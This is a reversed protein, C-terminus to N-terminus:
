FPKGMNVGTNAVLRIVEAGPSSLIKQQLEAVHYHNSPANLKSFSMLLSSATAADISPLLFHSQLFLPDLITHSTERLVVLSSLLRTLDKPLLSQPSSTIASFLVTQLEMFLTASVAAFAWLFRASSHATLMVDTEVLRVSLEHFFETASTHLVAAASATRDLIEEPIEHIRNSLREVVKSFWEPTAVKLRSFGEMFMCLEDTQFGEWTTKFRDVVASDLVSPAEMVGLATMMGCIFRSGGRPILLLGVSEFKEPIQLNHVGCARIVSVCMEEDHIKPATQNSLSDIILQVMSVDCSPMRNYCWLLSTIGEPTTDRAINLVTLNKEVAHFIEPDVAEQATLSWLVNCVHKARWPVTGVPKMLLRRPLSGPHLFPQLDNQLKSAAWMARAVDSTSRLMPTVHEFAWQCQELPIQMKSCGWLFLLLDETTANRTLAQTYVASTISTVHKMDCEDLINRGLIWYLISIEKPTIVPGKEGFSLEIRKNKPFIKDLHTRLDHLTNVSRGDIQVLTMTKLIRKKQPKSNNAVRKVKLDPTFTISNVNQVELYVRRTIRVTFGTKLSLKKDLEKVTRGLINKIVNPSCEAKEVNYLVQILDKEACETWAQQPLRATRLVAAEMRVKNAIISKVGLTKTICAVSRDFLQKRAAQM